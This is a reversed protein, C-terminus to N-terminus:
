NEVRDEETNEKPLISVLNELTMGREHLEAAALTRLCHNLNGWHAFCQKKLETSEAERGRLDLYKSLYYNLCMLGFQDDGPLLKQTPEIDLKSEKKAFDENIMKALKVFAKYNETTDEDAKQKDLDFIYQFVLNRKSTDKVQEATLAWMIAGGIEKHKNYYKELLELAKEPQREMLYYIPLDFTNYQELRAIQEQAVKRAAEVDGKETRRCYFYWDLASDRYRESVAKHNEESQDWNRM